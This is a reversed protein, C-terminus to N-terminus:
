PRAKGGQIFLPQDLLLVRLSVRRNMERDKDTTEKVKPDAPGIGIAALERAALGRAVLLAIVRDARDRSLRVNREEQGSSDTHGVVQIQFDVEAQRAAEALRLMAIAMEGVVAVQPEALDSSGFAFRASFAEVQTRLKEIEELDTDVLKSDDYAVVGPIGPAAKRAAVVWPHPARGTAVLRGRQAGAAADFGLTVGQPPRLVAAARAKVLLPNLSYYPELQLSLRSPDIRREKFFQAAGPANADVLGIVLPTGSEDESVRTIVYGQQTKTWDVFEGVLRQQSWWRVGWWFLLPILILMAVWFFPFSRKKKAPRAEEKLCAELIPRATIFVSADGQFEALHEGHEALIRELAEQLTARFAQPAVGRIAAAVIATPGQEVWCTVDGIRFSDLGQGEQVGFSDKAFDRIATMMGSVMDADQAQVQEAIVHQLMLGTERHILFVQEVRYVLARKLRVAGFSQGTRWGEILCSLGERTFPSALTENFSQIFGQLADSISKRIAPGMVPSIADVIHRPNKQVSTRLATEITPGLAKALRGDKGTRLAVADPLADAVHKLHWANDALTKDLRDLRAAEPGVLVSRVAALDAKHDRPPEAPQGGDDHTHPPTPKHAADDM